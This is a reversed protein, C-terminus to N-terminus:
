RGHGGTGAGPSRQSRVRRFSPRVPTTQHYATVLEGEVVILVKDTMREIKAIQKKLDRILEAADRRRLMIRDRGIDTGHALLVELDTKRFGRQSMRTEGHRTMILATM